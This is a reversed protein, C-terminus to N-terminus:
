LYNIWSDRALKEINGGLEGEIPSTSPKHLIRNLDEHISDM